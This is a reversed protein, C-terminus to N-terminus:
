SAPVPDRWIDMPVARVARGDADLIRGMRKVTRLSVRREAM